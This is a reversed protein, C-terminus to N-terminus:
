CGTDFAGVFDLYDFFDITGDRNFDAPPQDTDFAAVFDLYDFFDVSADRNFDARCVPFFYRSLDTITAPLTDPGIYTLSANALIDAETFLPISTGHAQNLSYAIGNAWLAQVPTNPHIGDFVWGTDQDAANFGRQTLRIPVNGILLTPTPNSAPGLIATAYANMDFFPIALERALDRARLAFRQMAASALARRPPDVFLEYTWPLAGLDIVSSLVVKGGANIAPTLLARYNNIVQDFYAQEQAPSWVSDYWNSYIGRWPAMDNQGIFMVVHSVGRNTIGDAVGTHQGSGLAEATTSAFRAWNDQFGARRPEGWSGVGAQAATPGMSINRFEVLQQAWSRAYGYGDEFYEDTLSDGIAALRTIGFQQALASSSLALFLAAAALRSRRHTALPANFM